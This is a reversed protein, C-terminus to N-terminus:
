KEWEAIKLNIIADKSKVKQALKMLVLAEDKSLFENTEYKLAIDKLQNAEATSLLIGMMKIRNLISCIGEVIANETNPSFLKKQEESSVPAQFLNKAQGFFKEFFQKNVVDFQQYFNLARNDTLNGLVLSKNNIVNTVLDTGIYIQQSNNFDFCKNIARIFISQLKSIGENSREASYNLKNLDVDDFVRKIFDKYIDGDYWQKKDYLVAEINDIGFVDSWQSLMLLYNYYISNVGANPMFEVLPGSFGRRLATSYLSKRLDSQERFYCIVKVDDFNKLLFEHLAAIGDVNNLQSHFHESSIVMCDHDISLKSIEESFNDLFGLFFKNKEEINKIGNDIFFSDFSSQFFACLDRNNKKQLFKSLAIRQTSLQAYNSYLWNQIATTGTKETGIHLVCKM